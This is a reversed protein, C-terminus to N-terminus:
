TPMCPHKSPNDATTLKVQSINAHGFDPWFIDTANYPSALLNYLKAQAESAATSNVDTLAIVNYVNISGPVTQTVTCKAVLFLRSFINHEITTVFQLM